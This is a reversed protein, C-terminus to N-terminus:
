GAWPDTGSRCRRARGTGPQSRTGCYSIRSAATASMGSVAARGGAARERTDALDRTECLCNISIAAVVVVFLVGVRRPSRRVPTM